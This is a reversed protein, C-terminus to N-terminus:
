SPQHDFPVNDWRWNRLTRELRVKVLQFAIEPDERLLDVSVVLRIELLKGTAPVATYLVEPARDQLAQWDKGLREKEDEIASM